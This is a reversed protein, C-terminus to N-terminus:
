FHIAYPFVDCYAIRVNRYKIEYNLPNKQLRNISAKVDKAFRDDLGKQQERYWKKTERVDQVVEDYYYLKWAM